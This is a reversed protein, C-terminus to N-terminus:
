RFLAIYQCYMVVLFLYARTRNIRLPSHFGHFLPTGAKTASQKGTGNRHGIRPGIDANPVKSIRSMEQFDAEKDEMWTHSLITDLPVDPRIFVKMRIITTNIAKHPIVILTLWDM